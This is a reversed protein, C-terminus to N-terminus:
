QGVALDALGELTPRLRLNKALAIDALVTGRIRHELEAADNPFIVPRDVVRAVAGQKADVSVLRFENRDAHRIQEAGIVARGVEVLRDIQGPLSEIRPLPFHRIAFADITNHLRVSKVNA